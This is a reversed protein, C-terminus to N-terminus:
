NMERGAAVGSRRATCPGRNVGAGRPPRRPRAPLHRPRPRPPGGRAPRGSHYLARGWARDSADPRGGGPRSRLFAFRSDDDALSVLVGAVAEIDGDEPPLPMEAIEM